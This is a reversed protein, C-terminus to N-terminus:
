LLLSLLLLGLAQRSFMQSFFSLYLLLYLIFTRTKLLLALMM